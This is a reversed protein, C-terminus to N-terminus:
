LHSSGWYPSGGFVYGRTCVGSFQVFCSLLGSSFMLAICGLCSFSEHGVPLSLFIQYLALVCIWSVLGREVLSVELLFLCSSPGLGRHWIVIFVSPDAPFFPHSFADAPIPTQYASPLLRFMASFSSFWCFWGVELELASSLAISSASLRFSSSSRTISDPENDLRLAIHM